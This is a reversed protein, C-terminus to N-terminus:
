SAPKVVAGVLLECSGTTTVSHYSGRLAPSYILQTDGGHSCYEATESASELGVIDGKKIFVRPASFTEVADPEDENFGLGQVNFLPSRYVAKATNDAKKRVIVFRVTEAGGARIKFKTIRGSVPAAIGAPVAGGRDGDNPIRTCAPTPDDSGDEACNHGPTSGSPEHDLRHGFTINPSAFASPALALALLTTTIATTKM